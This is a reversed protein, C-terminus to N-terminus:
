LSSDDKKIEVENSYYKIAWEEILKIAKALETGKETLQYEVRPPVEPYVIKNLIGASELEKLNETLVKQSVGVTVKQLELFRKPSEYLHCLILSKWKGRLNEFGLDLFCLYSKNNYNIM